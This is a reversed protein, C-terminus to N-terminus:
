TNTGRATVFNKIIGRSYIAAVSKLFQLFDTPAVEDASDSITRIVGVPVSHEYCVQAVAAGEMEVCAIPLRRRLDTIEGKNAFFKDGSGINGQVVKPVRIGFKRRPSAEVVSEFDSDFFLQSAKLLEDRLLHDAPFASINLLPIEYRKFLPRADMDHQFLNDAIVVDGIGLEPDASGAVGSFIIQKVRFASILHTSTTAASVKGWRSFVLTVPTDWLFGSYYTRMGQSHTRIKSGMETILLDIEELMASMIGLM